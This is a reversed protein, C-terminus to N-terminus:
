SSQLPHIAYRWIFQRALGKGCVLDTFTGEGLNYRTWFFIYMYIIKYM